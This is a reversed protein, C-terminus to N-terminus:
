APKMMKFMIKQRYYYEFVDAPTPTYFDGPVIELFGEPRFPRASVKFGADHFAKAIDTLSYDQVPVASFKDIERKWRAWQPNDTHSSISIYYEGGPKLAQFSDQAHAMLDPLLYVVENSVMIDASNKYASLNTVAAYEVPLDGKRQNAVEISSQAIDVGIGKGFNKEAFLQRLFGGQNCGFDLITKGSLSDHQILDIIAKWQPSHGEEMANEDEVPDLWWRDILDPKKSM